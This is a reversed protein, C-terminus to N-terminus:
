IYLVLSDLTFAPLMEQTSVIHKASNWTSLLQVTTDM